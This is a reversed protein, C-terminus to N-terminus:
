QMDPRRARFAQANFDSPGAKAVELWHKWQRAYNIPGLGHMHHVAMLPEAWVQMGAADLRRAFETDEGGAAYREDFGGLEQWADRSVMANTAGLAGIGVNEIKAASKMYSLNTMNNTLNEIWSGWTAEYIPGHAGGVEPDNFHRAGGQLFVDTAIAAHGVLSCIVPNDAREFGRNLANPYTFDRQTIGVVDAGFSRAVESTRDTSETDVVILQTDVSGRQRETLDHLMTELRVEDNKTRIVVSVGPVTADDIEDARLDLRKKLRNSIVPTTFHESHLVTM